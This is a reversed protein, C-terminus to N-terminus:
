TNKYIRHLSIATGLSLSKKNKDRDFGKRGRSRFVKFLDRQKPTLVLHIRHRTETRLMILKATTEGQINAFKRVENKDYDNTIAERLQNRVDFLSLMLSRKQPRVKDMINWIKKRQKKSLKLNEMMRFKRLMRGDFPMGLMAGPHHGRMKEHQMCCGQPSASVKEMQILFPITIILITIFHIYKNKM